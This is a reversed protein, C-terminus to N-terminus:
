YTPRIVTSTKSVAEAQQESKPEKQT